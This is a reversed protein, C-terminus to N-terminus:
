QQGGGLTALFSNVSAGWAHATNGWRDLAFGEPWTPEGDMILKYYTRNVFDMAAAGHGYAVVPSLILDTWGPGFHNVPGRERGLSRAVFAAARERQEATGIGALLALANGHLGHSLPPMAHPNFTGQPGVDVCPEVRNAFCGAAADWFRPLSQRLRGAIEGAGCTEDVGLAVGAEAALLLLANIPLSYAEKPIPAWDVWHWSWAPPVYLGEATLGSRCRALMRGIASAVEAALTRDGTAKVYDLCSVVFYFSQDMLVAGTPGHPVVAHPIGDQDIGQAILALCRRWMATEGFTVHAAKAAVCADLTWCVNERHCTDVIVDNIGARLTEASVRWIARAADDDVPCSRMAGFPYEVARLALRVTCAGEGSWHLTVYRAGRNQLTEVRAPGRVLFSDAFGEDAARFGRGALPREGLGVAYFADVRGAGAELVEAALRMTRTRGLDLTAVEGPRLVLTDAPEDCRAGTVPADNFVAALNDAPVARGMETRGRWVTRAALPEERLLPIPRPAMAVWPPTGGPGLTRAQPWDAYPGTLWAELGGAHHEQFGVPLSSLLRHFRVDQLARSHWSGDTHLCVRRKGCAAEMDAFLGMRTTVAYATVGTPPLVVVAIDNEGPRLLSRLDWEDLLQQRPYGRAPGGGARTGNVFLVYKWAATIRCRATDPHDPLHLTQRFLCPSDLLPRADDRWDPPGIWFPEPM